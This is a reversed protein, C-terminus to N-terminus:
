ARTYTIQVSDLLASVALNDAGSGLRYIRWRVMQGAAPSGALTLASTAVSIRQTYASSGNADTVEQATGWSADIADNDAYARGQIGWVVSNTSSSNATWFFKATLTGGNYDSPLPHAVEIYRQVGTPFTWDNLNQKNTAMETKTPSTAGNTTSAIGSGQNALVFQATIPINKLLVKKSTSTSADYTAIYDAAMDPTTDETLGNIIKLLNALQLYYDTSGDTLLLKLTTAPNTSEGGPAQEIYKDTM